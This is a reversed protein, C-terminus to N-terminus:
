STAITFRARRHAPKEIEDLLADALDAVTVFAGVPEDLGVRYSGVRQDDTIVPAPSLFTWDLGAPADPGRLFDLVQAASLSEDRYEAPFDPTELLKVGPAVNLSGAGGIVFLRTDGVAAAM